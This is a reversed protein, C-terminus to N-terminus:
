FLKTRIRALRVLIIALWYTSSLVRGVRSEDEGFEPRHVGRVVPKSNRNIQGRRIPFWECTGTFALIRRGCLEFGSRRSRDARKLHCGIM